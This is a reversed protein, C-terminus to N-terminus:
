TSKHWAISRQNKLRLEKTVPNYSLSLKAEGDDGSYLITYATEPGDTSIECKQIFSTTETANGTGFTITVQSIELSRDRYAPDSTIWLGQLEQPVDTTVPALFVDALHDCTPWHFLFVFVKKLFSIQAVKGQQDEHNAGLLFWLKM